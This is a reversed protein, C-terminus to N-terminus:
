SITAVYIMLVSILAAVFGFFNYRLDLPDVSNDLRYEKYTFFAYVGIAPVLCLLFHLVSPGWFFSSLFFVIGFGGVGGAYNALFHLTLDTRGLFPRMLKTNIESTSM